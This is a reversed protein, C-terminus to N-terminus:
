ERPPKRPKLGKGEPLKPTQRAIKELRENFHTESDDAEAERAAERFKEIQPKEPKGMARSYIM